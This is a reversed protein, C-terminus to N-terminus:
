PHVTPELESKEELLQIPSLNISWISRYDSNQKLLLYLYLVFCFCFECCIKSKASIETIYTNM